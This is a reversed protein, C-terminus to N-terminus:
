KGILKPVIAKLVSIGIAFNIGTDAGDGHAPGYGFTNIGLLEGEPVNVLPGGSNGPNSAADSQILSEVTINGNKDAKRRLQSIIGASVSQDFAYPSGCALVLQGVGIGDVNALTVARASSPISEAKLVALDRGEDKGLLSAKVVTGDAFTVLVNTTKEVVHFNTVIHGNTDWVVGSGLSTAAAIDGTVRVTSPAIKDYAQKYGNELQTIADSSSAPAPKATSAAAPPAAATASSAPPLGCAGSLGSLTLVSAILLRFKFTNIM